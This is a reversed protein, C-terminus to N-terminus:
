AHNQDNVFEKPVGDRWHISTVIQVILVSGLLSLSMLDPRWGFAMPAFLSFCSVVGLFYFAALVDRRVTKDTKVARCFCTYFLAISLIEHLALM